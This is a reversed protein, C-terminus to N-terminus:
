DMKQITVTFDDHMAQLKKTLEEPESEIKGLKVLGGSYSWDKYYMNVDKWPAYYGFDGVEPDDGPPADETSLGKDLITLKEFGGFEKFTLTLPLRSLFDRSTPNDYMKVTFEENNFMLKIRVDKSGHNDATSPASPQAVQNNTENTTDAENAVRNNTTNDDRKSNSGDKGGCSALSFAMAFVLLLSLVQKM